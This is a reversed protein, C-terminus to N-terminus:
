SFCNAEQLHFYLKAPLPKYERKFYQEMLHKGKSNKPGIIKCMGKFPNKPNNGAELKIM